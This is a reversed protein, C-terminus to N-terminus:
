GHTKKECASKELDAGVVEKQLMVFYTIKNAKSDVISYSVFKASFEPSDYQGDGSVWV